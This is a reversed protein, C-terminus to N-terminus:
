LDAAWDSEAALEECQECAWDDCGLCVGHDCVYLKAVLGKFPPERNARQEDVWERFAPDAVAMVKAARANPALYCGGCVFDEPPEYTSGSTQMTPSVVEYHRQFSGPACTTM